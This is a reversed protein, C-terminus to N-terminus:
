SLLIAWCFGFGATSTYCLVTPNPTVSYQVTSYVFFSRIIIMVSRLSIGIYVAEGIPSIAHHITIVVIIRDMQDLSFLLM